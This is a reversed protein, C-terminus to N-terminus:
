PASIVFYAVKVTAPATPAKNIFITFQGSGASANKVYFSGQGQVTALVFDTTTVGALTVTVSKHGSAIVATGATSFSARGNVVLATGASQALVGVGSASSGAVGYGNADNEGYVGSTGSGSTQGWVGNGASGYGKVGTGGDGEMSIASPGAIVVFGTTFPSTKTVETTDDSSNNMCGLLLSGGQQNGCSADTSDNATASSGTAGIVMGAILAVALGASIRLVFNRVM